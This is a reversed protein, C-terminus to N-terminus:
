AGDRLAEVLAAYAGHGDGGPAIWQEATALLAPADLGDLSAEDYRIRPEIRVFHGKPLLDGLQQAPVLVNANGLVDMIASSWNGRVDRRLLWQLKGWDGADRDDGVHYGPNYLGTGLSVVLVERLDHVQSERALHSLAYLAPNNAAVGVDIVHRPRANSGRLAGRGIRAVPFYTPAASTGRAAEWVFYDEDPDRSAEVHDFVVPGPQVGEGAAVTYATTFANKLRSGELRRMAAAAASLTLDAGLKERLWAAIGSRPDSPHEGVYKAAFLGRGNGVFLRQEEHLYFSLIEAATWPTRLDGRPVVPASLGMAIIGGTSTGGVCDFLTYIPRGLDAELRSLVYAPVVGRIGGGDVVLVRWRIAM